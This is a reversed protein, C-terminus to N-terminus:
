LALLVGSLIDAVDRNGGLIGRRIEQLGIVPSQTAFQINGLLPPDAVQVAFSLAIRGEDDAPCAPIVELLRRSQDCIVVGALPFAPISGPQHREQGSEILKEGPNVLPMRLNIGFETFRGSLGKLRHQLM